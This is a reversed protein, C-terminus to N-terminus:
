DRRSRGLLLAGSAILLLASLPLILWLRSAQEPIQAPPVLATPPPPAAAPTPAQTPAMWWLRSEPTVPEAVPAPEDPLLDLEEWRDHGPYWIFVPTGVLAKALQGVEEWSLNDYQKWGEPSRYGASVGTYASPPAPRPAQTFAPLPAAPARVRAAASGQPDPRRSAVTQPVVGGALPAPASPRGPPGQGPATQRLVPQAPRGARRDEAGQKWYVDTPAPATGLPEGRFGRDYWFQPESFGAQEDPSPLDIEAVEWGTKADSVPGPYVPLTTVRTEWLAVPQAEAARQEAASQPTLSEWQTHGPYWVFPELGADIIARTRGDVAAWSLSDAQHWNGQADRYGLSLTSSELLDSPSSSTAPAFDEAVPPPPLEELESLGTGVGASADLEGAQSADSPVEQAGSALTLRELAAYPDPAAEPDTNTAEGSAPEAWTGLAAYPDPAPESAADMSDALPTSWDSPFSVAEPATITEIAEAAGTDALFESVAESATEYGELAQEDDM